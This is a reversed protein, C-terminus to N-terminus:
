LFKMDLLELPRYMMLFSSKQDFCWHLFNRAQFQSLVDTKKQWCVSVFCVHQFCKSQPPKRNQTLFHSEEFRLFFWICGFLHHFSVRWLGQDLGHTNLLSDFSFYVWFYFYHRWHKQYHTQFILLLTEELCSYFLNKANHFNMRHFSKLEFM